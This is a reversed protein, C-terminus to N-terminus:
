PRLDDLLEEDLIKSDKFIVVDVDKVRSVNLKRFTTMSWWGDSHLTRGVGRCVRRLYLVLNEM